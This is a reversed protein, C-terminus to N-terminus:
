DFYTLFAIFLIPVKHGVTIAKLRGCCSTILKRPCQPETKAREEQCVM